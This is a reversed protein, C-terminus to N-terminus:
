PADDEPPPAAAPREVAGLRTPRCTLRQRAALWLFRPNGLLYRRWLRRPEACLRYFWELGARQMWRPAQPVTGAHFAFAAGVAVLVPARLLPRMEAMWYDQKPTGLGVWVVDAGSADIRAATERREAETLPRFPPVEAGCIRLGPFRALMRERLLRSTTEDAGGYFYHRLGAARGRDLTELMTDPGYCRDVDLRAFRRGAFVLPMGDCLVLSAGRAVAALRPDDHCKLVSDVAFVCVYGREGARAMRVIEAVAEARRCGTLSAELVRFRPFPAPSASGSM